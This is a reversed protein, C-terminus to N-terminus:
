TAYNQTREEERHDHCQGLLAYHSVFCGCHVASSICAFLIIAFEPPSLDSDSFCTKGATFTIGFACFKDLAHLLPQRQRRPGSLFTSSTPIFACGASCALEVSSRLAQYPLLTGMGEFSSKAAGM